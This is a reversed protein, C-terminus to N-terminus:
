WTRNNHRETHCTGDCRGNVRTMGQRLAVDVTRNIHEAFGVIDNQDDVTAGHCEWCMVEDGLHAAHEGSMRLWQGFGSAPGPHCDACGQVTADHRIQGNDGRGNGHCWLNSCSGNANWQGASSVSAVFSTEAVGPTSDGLFLHGPTLIDAPKVHCEVCDLPRKIVTQQVHALHPLFSAAAGDDVGSIHVPPAGSGESPDGHCFTCDERWGRAHCTDCSPIGVAGTLDAGHCDVCAEVQYKAEYGHLDVAAYGQVHHRPAPVQTDVPVGCAEPAGDAIWARITEIEDAPLPNGYPMPNGVPQTGLLMRFLLSRDPDGATVRTITPDLVSAVGVIAHYADSQLDLGGLAAAGHCSVCRATFIEQVDCWPGRPADTDAPPDTDDAGDTETSDTEQDTEAPDTDLPVDTEEAPDKGGTTCSLALLLLFPRM